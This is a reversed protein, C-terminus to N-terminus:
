MIITSTYVSNGTLAFMNSICMIVPNRLAM